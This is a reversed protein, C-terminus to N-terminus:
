SWTTSTRSCSAMSETECSRPSDGEALVIPVAGASMSEVTTIGFHEFRAPEREANEASSRRAGSFQFGRRLARNDRQGSAGIHFDVPVGNAAAKVQDLYPQDATTCGGVLHVEWDRMGRENLRRFAEVMERQKKSHGRDAAFFRGVSLIIPRKEGRQQLRVPPYLVDSDRGSWERVFRQTFESNSVVHSYTSLLIRERLRYCCSRIARDSCPGSRRRSACTRWDCESAVRLRVWGRSRRPGLYREQDRCTVIRRQRPRSHPGSRGRASRDALPETFRQGRGCPRRGSRDRGDQPRPCTALRQGFLVELSASSGSPVDVFFEGAGTSWARRQWMRREGVSLVGHGVSLSRSPEECRASSPRRHRCTQGTSVTRAANPFSRCLDVSEATSRDHSM